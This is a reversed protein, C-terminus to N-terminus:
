GHRGGRKQLLADIKEEISHRWVEEVDTHAKLERKVIREMRSEIWVWGFVISGLMAMGTYIQISMAESM